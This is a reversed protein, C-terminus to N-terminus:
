GHKSEQMKALGKRGYAALDALGGRWPKQPPRRRKPKETGLAACMQAWTDSRKKM